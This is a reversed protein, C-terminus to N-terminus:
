INRLEEITTANAVSARKANLQSLWTQDDPTNAIGISTNDQRKRSEVMATNNINNLCIEKAADLDVVFSGNNIRIADFFKDDMKLPLDNIEVVVHSVGSPVDKSIVDEIPIQGTPICVALIGSNQPWVIVNM